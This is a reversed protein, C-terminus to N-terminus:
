VPDRHAARQLRQGALLDSSCVDSSWDCTLRTHRRRSSFFFSPRLVPRPHYSYSFLLGLFISSGWAGPELGLTTHATGSSFSHMTSSPTFGSSLGVGSASHKTAGSPASM